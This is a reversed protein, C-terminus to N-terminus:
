DESEASGEDASFATQLADLRKRLADIEAQQRTVVEDLQRVLDDTFSLKIELETVRKDLQQM